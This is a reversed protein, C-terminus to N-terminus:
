NDRCEYRLDSFIVHEQSFVFLGLRGGALTHDYVAGSDTMIERGEYVVVGNQRTHWLANRLYRGQGHPIPALNLPSARQEVRQWRRRPSKEDLSAQLCKDYGTVLPM